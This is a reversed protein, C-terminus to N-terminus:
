DTSSSEASELALEVDVGVESDVESDAGGFRVIGFPATGIPMGIIGPNVPTTNFFVGRPGVLAEDDGATDPGVVDGLASLMNPTLSRLAPAPELYHRRGDIVYKNALRQWIDV